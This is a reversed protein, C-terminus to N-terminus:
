YSHRMTPVHQWQEQVLKNIAGNAKEISCISIREAQTRVSVPPKPAM